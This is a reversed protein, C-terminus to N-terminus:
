FEERNIVGEDAMRSLLRLLVGAQRESPVGKTLGFRHILDVEMPSLGRHRSIVPWVASKVEMVRRVSEFGSDMVQQKRDDKAQTLADQASM